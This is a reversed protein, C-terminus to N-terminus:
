VNPYIYPFSCKNNCFLSHRIPSTTGEGASGFFWRCLYIQHKLSMLLLDNTGGRQPEGSLKNSFYCIYKCYNNHLIRYIYVCTYKILLQVYRPVNSHPFFLMGYQTCFSKHKHNYQRDVLRLKSSLCFYDWKFFFNRENQLITFFISHFPIILISSQLQIYM